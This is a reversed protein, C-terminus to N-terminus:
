RSRRTCGPGTRARRRVPRVAPPRTPELPVRLGAAAPVSEAAAAPAAEGGCAKGGTVSQFEDVALMGQLQAPTKRSPLCSGTFRSVAGCRDNRLMAPCLRNAAARAQAPRQNAARCPECKGALEHRGRRGRARRRRARRQRSQAQRAGMGPWTRRGRSRGAAIRRTLRRIRGARRAANAAREGIRLGTMWASQDDIQRGGQPQRLHGIRPQAQAAFRNALRPSKDRLAPATTAPSSRRCLRGDACHGAAFM